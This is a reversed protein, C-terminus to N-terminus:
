ATQGIKRSDRIYIEFAWIINLSGKVFQINVSAVIRQRCIQRYTRIHKNERSIEVLSHDGIVIQLINVISHSAPLPRNVLMIFHSFGYRGIQVIVSNEVLIVPISGCM